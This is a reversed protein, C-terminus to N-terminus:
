VYRRLEDPSKVIRDAMWQALGAREGASLRLGLKSRRWLVDDATRAWEEKMLWAVECAHLDAGFHHGLDALAGSCGLIERTRTGYARALRRVTAEPLFGFDHSLDHVLAEFGTAPFEGGPLAAGKTWAGGTEGLWPALKELVAEAL